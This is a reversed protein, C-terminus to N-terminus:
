YVIYIWIPLVFFGLAIAIGIIGAVTYIVPALKKNMAGLSQLASWIGHRLHFGLMLMVGSYVLVKLLNDAFIEIVLKSLDRMQKGGEITTYYAVDATDWGPGFKMTKLHMFMFLFLITGSIIMTRSSFSQKSPDGKSATVAYAEPRAKRKGLWISVGIYAHILFIAALGFEIVYLLFGLDHLFLAYRNFANDPNSPDVVFLTLNASLHGILFLVLAIGTVGTLLKRGVSNQFATLLNLM